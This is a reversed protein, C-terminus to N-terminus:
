KFRPDIIASGWKARLKTIIEKLPPANRLALEKRVNEKIFSLEPNPKERRDRLNVIAYGNDVAIPKSTEGVKLQKAANMIPAAVFPDNEEIWGLDGGGNSTNDDLSRDRALTAFDEGKALDTLVKNAQEKTSVVIIRIHFEVESKFEDPHTQIYEEVQADTITINRTALKDLLLKYHVDERLEEKSMGLQVKMSEYFQGESEYGQQMRKLEREIEANTVSIGTEKGELSIAERDIIQNLLEAGYRQELATELEGITIKRSGIAAVIRENDKVTQQETPKTPEPQNWSRAIQLSILVLLCLAMCGIVGWLRKVNRM